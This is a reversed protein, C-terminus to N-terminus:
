PQNTAPPLYGLFGGLVQLFATEQELHVIHGADSIISSQVEDALVAMKQAVEVYKGDQAGAIALTPMKLADLKEWLSVQRGVSLSRLVDAAARRDVDKRAAAIRKRLSPRTRLSSFVPQEYWARLVDEISESESELRDAWGDDLRARTSREVADRIGPSASVTVLRRCRDPHALAFHMAVRGGMSYGVLVCRELRYRDLEDNLWGVVDAMTFRRAPIPTSGHGPLDLAYVTFSRRLARAVDQWDAASGLFGHLLVVPSDRDELERWM